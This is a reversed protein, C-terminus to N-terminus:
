LGKTMEFLKKMVGHYSQIEQDSLRLFYKQIISDDAKKMEEFFQIGRQDMDVFIERRNEKNISRHVYKKEELKKIQQSAASATGNIYEAIENVTARGKQSLFKLIYIQKTSLDFEKLVKEYEKIFVIKLAENYETAEQILKERNM